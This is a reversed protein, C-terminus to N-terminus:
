AWAALVHPVRRADMFNAGMLALDRSTPEIRLVAIRRADVTRVEENLRRTMAARMVREPV